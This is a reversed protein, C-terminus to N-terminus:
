EQKPKIGLKRMLRRMARTATKLYTKKIRTGMKNRSSKKQKKSM